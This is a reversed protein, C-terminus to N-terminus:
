QKSSASSSDSQKRDGLEKFKPAGSGGKGGKKRGQTAGKNGGKELAAAAEKNALGKVYAISTKDKFRVSIDELWDSVPAEVGVRDYVEDQLHEVLASSHEGKSIGARKKLLANRVTFWEFIREHTNALAEYYEQREAPSLSPDLIAAKFDSKLFEQAGWYYHLLPATIAYEYQLSSGLEALGDATRDGYLSFAQPRRPNVPPNRPDPGTYPNGVYRELPVYTLQDWDAERKRRAEATNTDNVSGSSTAPSPRQALLLEAELRAKEAELRLARERLLSAEASEAAATAGASNATASAVAAVVAAQIAAAIGPALVEPEPNPNPNPGPNGEGDGESPATELDSGNDEQSM